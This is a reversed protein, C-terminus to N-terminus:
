SSMEVDDAANEFSFPNIQSVDLIGSITYNISHESELTNYSTTGTCDAQSPNMLGAFESDDQINQWDSDEECFSVMDSMAYHISNHVDPIEVDEFIDSLIQLIQIATSYKWIEVYKKLSSYDFIKEVNMIVQQVNYHSFQTYLHPMLTSCSTEMSVKNKYENLTERLLEKQSDSVHRKKCVLEEDDDNESALFLLQEIKCLSMSLIVVVTRQVSTM